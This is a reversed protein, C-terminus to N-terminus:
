RESGLYVPEPNDNPLRRLEVRAPVVEPLPRPLDRQVPPQVNNMEPQATPSSALMVEAVNRRSPPGTDPMAAGSTQDRPQLAAVTRHAAILIEQAPRESLREYYAPLTASGTQGLPQEPTEPRGEWTRQNLLEGECNCLCHNLANYATLRVRMSREGPNGDRSSGAAGIRLAEVTKDTCCCGKSLAFAPDYRVCESRDTRLACILAAEAEPYSHCDVTALYKVADARAHAKM